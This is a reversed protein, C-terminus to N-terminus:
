NQMPSMLPKMRCGLKKLNPILMQLNSNKVMKTGEHSVELIIWAEKALECMSIRNFEDQSVIMCIAQLGKSNWNCANEEKKTWEDIKTEPKSWCRKISVWVREYLSKLLVRM